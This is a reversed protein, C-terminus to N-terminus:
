YKLYNKIDEYISNQLNKLEFDSYVMWDRHNVDELIEDMKERGQRSETGYQKYLRQLEWYHKKCKIFSENEIRLRKAIAIDEKTLVPINESSQLKIYDKVPINMKHAKTVISDEKTLEKYLIKIENTTPDKGKRTIYLAYVSISSNVLIRLADTKKNDINWGELENIVDCVTRDKNILSQIKRIRVATPNWFFYAVFAILLLIIFIWM